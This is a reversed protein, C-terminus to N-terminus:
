VGLTAGRPRAADKGAGGVHSVRSSSTGVDVSTSRLLPRDSVLHTVPRGASVATGGVMTAGRGGAPAGGGILVSPTSRPPCTESPRAVLGAGHRGSAVHGGGEGGLQTESPEVQTAAGNEVAHRDQHGECNVMTLTLGTGLDTGGAAGDNTPRDPLDNAHDTVASPCEGAHAEMQPEHTLAAVHADGSAVEKVQALTSNVNKFFEVDGMEGQGGENVIVDGDAKDAATAASWQEGKMRAQIGTTKWAQQQAVPKECDWGCDYGGCDWCARKGDKSQQKKLWTVEEKELRRTGPKKNRGSRCDRKMHGEQGCNYCQGGFRGKPGRDAVNARGKAKSPCQKAGHGRGGCNGCSSDGAANASKKQQVRCDRNLHFMGSSNPTTHIHCRDNPKRGIKTSSDVHVHGPIPEQKPGSAAAATPIAETKLETTVVINAEHHINPHKRREKVFRYNPPPAIFYKNGKEEQKVEFRKIRTEWMELTYGDSGPENEIQDIIPRYRDALMGDTIKTLWQAHPGLVDDSVQTLFARSLLRMGRARFQPYNEFNQVVPFGKCGVDQRLEFWLRRYDMELKSSKRVIENWMLYWLGFGDKDPVQAVLDEMAGNRYVDLLEFTWAGQEAFFQFAVTPELHEYVYDTVSLSYKLEKATTKVWVRSAKREAEDVKGSSAPASTPSPKRIPSMGSLTFPEDEGGGGGDGAVQLRSLRERAGKVEERCAKVKANAATIAEGAKQLRSKAIDINKKKQESDAKMTKSDKRVTDLLDEVQELTANYEKLLEMADEVEDYAETVKDEAIRREQKEAKMVEGLGRRDSTRRVTGHVVEQVLLFRATVQNSDQSGEDDDDSDAEEESVVTVRLAVHTDDAQAEQAEGDEDDGGDAQPLDLVCARWEGTPAGNEDRVAIEWGELLNPREVTGKMAEWAAEAQDHTGQLKEAEVGLEDINTRLSAVKRKMRKGERRMETSTAVAAEWEDIANARDTMAQARERGAVTQAVIAAKEDEEAQDVASVLDAMREGYGKARLDGLQQGSLFQGGLGSEDSHEVGPSSAKAGGGTGIPAGGTQELGVRHAHLLGIGVQPGILSRMGSSGDSAQSQGNLMSSNLSSSRSDDLSGDASPLRYLRRGVATPDIFELAIKVDEWYYGGGEEPKLRRPFTKDGRAFPAADGMLKLLMNYEDNEIFRGKNTYRSPKSFPGATALAKNAREGMSMKYSMM